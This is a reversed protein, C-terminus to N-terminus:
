SRRALQQRPELEAALAPLRRVVHEAVALRHERRGGLLPELADDGLAEVRGILRAKARAAPDLDLVDARWSSTIPPQSGPRPGARALVDARQQDAHVVGVALQAVDPADAAAEAVCLQLAQRRSSAGSRRLVDGNWLRGPAAARPADEALRPQDGLDLEALPRRVAAQAVGGIEPQAVVLVASRTTRSSMSAAPGGALLTLVCSCAPNARARARCSRSRRPRRARASVTSGRCAARDRPRSRGLAVHDVVVRRDRRREDAVQAITRQGDLAPGVADLALREKLLLRVACRGATPASRSAAWRACASRSGARGPGASARDPQRVERREFQVRRQRAGLRMSRGVASTKSRSGPGGAVIMSHQRTASVSCPM